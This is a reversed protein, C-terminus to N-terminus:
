SKIRPGILTWVVNGESHTSWKTIYKRRGSSKRADAAGRLEFDGKDSHYKMVTWVVGLMHPLSNVYKLPRGLTTRFHTSKKKLTQLTPNHWIDPRLQLLPYNHSAYIRCPNSTSARKILLDRLQLVHQPPLTCIWLSLTCVWFTIGRSTPGDMWDKFATPM